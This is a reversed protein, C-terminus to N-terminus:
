REVVNLLELNRYFELPLPIDRPKPTRDDFTHPPEFVYAPHKTIAVVNFNISVMM